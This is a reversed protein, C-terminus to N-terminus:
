SGFIVVSCNQLANVSYQKLMHNACSLYQSDDATYLNIDCINSM